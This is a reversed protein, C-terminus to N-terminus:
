GIENALEPYKERYARMRDDWEARAQAGRAGIGAEFHECVGDPVLFKADEPWKYARKCLKVEEDGLPEGHAASTDVKNPSGYGIHSAAVILTTKGERGTAERLAGEIWDVDNADNVRMVNWGYSAFRASVDETFTISTRGEITIHNKDYIWVLNDLALH